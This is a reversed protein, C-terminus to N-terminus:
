EAIEVGFKPEGSEDNIVKIEKKSNAVKDKVLGTLSTGITSEMMADISTLTSIANKSIASAGDTSIVTLDKINSMPESLARAVEPLQKVVIDLMAADNFKEFAKAKEDLSVAEARGRSEITTAEAQGVARISTAEAEGLAAVAEADAMATAKKAHAEADALEKKATADAIASLRTQEAEAESRLISELKRAEAEQQKQYRDADAPRRVETDLERERLIARAEAAEQEITAIERDQVAKALPGAADAIEREKDTEAKLQSERVALEKAKEAILTRSAVEQDNAEQDNRARAIRADRAVRETEPIGMNEIYGSGGDNIDDIQFSDIVLGMADMEPKAADLVSKALEDRKSILSSIPMSAVISRLSGNLAERSNESITYDPDDSDLFREAALRIQAPTSGVKLIAIASVQVKVLNEDVGKLDLRVKKQGLSIEVASQFIPVIFARGGQCVVKTEDKDKSGSIILASSPGVTRTRSAIFVLLALIVIVSVILPIAM